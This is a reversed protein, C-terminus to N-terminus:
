HFSQYFKELNEETAVVLMRDNLQFETDGSPIIFDEHSKGHGDHTLRKISVVIVNFKARLNLNILSKGAMQTPITLERLQHSAPLHVSEPIDEPLEPDIFRLDRMSRHLIERDYTEIIDKHSVVGILKKPNNNDVVPIEEVSDYEFKPLVNVLYDDPSLILYDENILDEALILNTEEQLSLIRPIDHITIVGEFEGKENLVYHCHDSKETIQQLVQDIPMSNILTDYDQHMIDRIQLTQLIRHSEHIHLNVGRRRLKLTYISDKLYRSSVTTSLICALMLPLFIEYNRTLEYIILIATIPAHTTGAVIAGMGVLAYAGSEISFGFAFNSFIVGM